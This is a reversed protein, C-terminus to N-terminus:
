SSCTGRRGATSSTLPLVPDVALAFRTPHPRRESTPRTCSVPAPRQTGTESTAAGRVNRKDAAAPPGRRSGRFLPRDGSTSSLVRKPLRLFPDQGGPLGASPPGAGWPCGSLLTVLTHGAGAPSSISPSSNSRLQPGSCGGLTDGAERPGSPCSQLTVGKRILRKDDPLACPRAKCNSKPPLSYHHRPAQAPRRVTVATVPPERLRCLAKATPADRQGRQM